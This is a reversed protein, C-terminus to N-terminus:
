KEDEFLDGHGLHELLIVEEVQLVKYHNAVEIGQEDYGVTTELVVRLADGPKVEFKQTQFGLLWNHDVVNAFIQHGRFRFQWQADSLFDPKKVKLIEHSKFVKQTDTLLEEVKEQHYLFSQNFEASESEVLLKATDKRDLHAVSSTIKEIGYLLGAPSPQKYAPLAKIDTSEALHQIETVIELLEGRTAIEKRGELYKILAYKAKVLYAGVLKKWDLNKIAEDDVSKLVNALIVRLSGSQIDELLLSPQLQLDFPAVLTRDIIEFADILGSMTKFVRSPNVTDRVFDIKIEFLQGEDSIMTEIPNSLNSGQRPLVNRSSTL